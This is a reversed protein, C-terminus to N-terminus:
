SRDGPRLVRLAAPSHRDAEVVVEGGAPCGYSAGAGLFHDRPDGTVTLWLRGAEVEIREGPALRLTTAEGRRLTLRAQDALVEALFLKPQLLM